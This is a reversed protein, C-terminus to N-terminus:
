HKRRPLDSRRKEDLISEIKKEIMDITDATFDPNTLVGLGKLCGYFGRGHALAIRANTLAQYTSYNNVENAEGLYKNMRRKQAALAEVPVTTLIQNAM